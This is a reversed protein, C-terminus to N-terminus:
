FCIKREQLYEPEITNTELLNTMYDLTSTCYKKISKFLDDYVKYCESNRISKIDWYIHRADSELYELKQITYKKIERDTGCITYKEPDMEDDNIIKEVSLDLWFGKHKPLSGTEKILLSCFIDFKHNFQNIYGFLTNRTYRTDYKIKRKLANSYLRWLLSTGVIAGVVGLVSIIIDMTTFSLDPM